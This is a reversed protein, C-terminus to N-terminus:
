FIACSGFLCVSKSLFVYGLAAATLFGCVFGGISDM